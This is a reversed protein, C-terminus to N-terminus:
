TRPPSRDRDLYARVATYPTRLFLGALVALASEPASDAVARHVLMTVSSPLGAGFLWRVRRALELESASPRLAKVWPEFSPDLDAVASLAVLGARRVRHTRLGEALREASLGHARLVTLDRATRDPQALRNKFAHSLTLTGADVLSPVRLPRLAPPAESSATLMAQNPFAGVLLPLARRHLDVATGDRRSLIATATWDDTRLEWDGSRRLASLAAHFSGSVLLVDADASPRAWPEVGLVQVFYLGKIALLVVGLPELAKAVAVAAARQQEAAVFASARRDREDDPTKM